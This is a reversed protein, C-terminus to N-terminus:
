GWIIITVSSNVGPGVRVEFVTTIRGAAADGRARLAVRLADPLQGHSAYLRFAM